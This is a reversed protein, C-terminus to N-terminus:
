WGPSPRGQTGAMWTGDRVALKKQGRSRLGSTMRPFREEMVRLEWVSREAQVGSGVGYIEIM